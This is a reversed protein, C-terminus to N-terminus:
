IALHAYQRTLLITSCMLPPQSKTLYKAITPAPTNLNLPVQLITPPQTGRGWLQGDRGGAGWGKAASQGM